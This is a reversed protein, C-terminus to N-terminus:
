RLNLEKKVRKWARKIEKKAESIFGYEPYFGIADGYQGDESIFPCREAFLEFDEGELEKILLDEAEDYLDSLEDMSLSNSKVTIYITQFRDETEGWHDKNILTGFELLGSAVKKPAKKAEAKARKAKAEAISDRVIQVLDLTINTIQYEVIAYEIYILEEDTLTAGLKELKLLGDFALNRKDSYEMINLELIREQLNTMNFREKLIFLKNKHTALKGHRGAPSHGESLILIIM